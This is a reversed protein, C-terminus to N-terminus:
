LGLARAALETGIVREITDRIAWDSLSRLQEQSIRGVSFDRMGEILAPPRPISGIPETPVPM